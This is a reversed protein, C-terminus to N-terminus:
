KCFEVLLHLLRFKMRATQHLYFYGDMRKELVDCFLICPFSIATSCDFSSPRMVLRNGDDKRGTENLYFVFLPSVGTIKTLVDVLHPMSLNNTLIAEKQAPCSSMWDRIEVNMPRNVIFETMGFGQLSGFPSLLQGNCVVSFIRLDFSPYDILKQRYGSGLFECFAKVLLNSGASISVVSIDPGLADVLQDLASIERHLDCSYRDLTAVCVRRFTDIDSTRFFVRVEDSHEEASFHSPMPEVQELRSLVVDLGAFLLHAHFIQRISHFIM